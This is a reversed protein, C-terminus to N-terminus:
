AYFAHLSDSPPARSGLPPGLSPQARGVTGAGGFVLSYFVVDVPPEHQGSGSLLKYALALGFPCNEFLSDHDSAGHAGGEQLDLPVFSIGASSCITIAFPAGRDSTSAPMYGVPVFARCFFAFVTLCFSIQWVLKSKYWFAKRRVYM